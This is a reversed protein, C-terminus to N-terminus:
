NYRPSDEEIGSLYNAYRALAYFLSSLRNLYAMSIMTPKGKELGMMKTDHLYSAFRREAKRTITRAIDLEASAEVGGSLRFEAVPPLIEAISDIVAEVEKIKSDKLHKDAGAIEAQVTFINQQVDELIKVFTTDCSESAVRLDKCKVKALGICSNMEDLAGLVEVRMSSKPYRDKSDFFSTTGGDGMGTYLKSM